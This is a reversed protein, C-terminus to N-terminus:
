NMESERATCPLLMKRYIFKSNTDRDLALTLDSTSAIAFLLVVVGAISCFPSNFM